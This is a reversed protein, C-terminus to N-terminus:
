TKGVLVWDRGRQHYRDYNARIDDPCHTPNVTFGLAEYFDRLQPVVFCYCGAPRTYAMCADIMYRGLGRSRYEKAVLLNRMWFHGSRQKLLRVSAILGDDITRAVIVIDNRTCSLRYGNERYFRDALGYKEIPLVSMDWQTSMDM